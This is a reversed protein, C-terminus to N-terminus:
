PHPSRKRHHQLDTPYGISLIEKHTHISETVAGTTRGTTGASVVIASADQRPESIPIINPMVSM